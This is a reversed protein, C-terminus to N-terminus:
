TPESHTMRLTPLHINKQILFKSIPTRCSPRASFAEYIVAIKRVFVTAGDLM